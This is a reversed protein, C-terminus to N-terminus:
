AQTIPIISENTEKTENEEEFLGSLALKEEKSGQRQHSGM